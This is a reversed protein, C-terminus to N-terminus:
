ALVWAPAPAVWELDLNIWFRGYTAVIESTPFPARPRAEIKQEARGPIKFHFSATTSLLPVMATELASLKADLDAASVGAVTVSAEIVRADQTDYGMFVGDTTLKPTDSTLVNANGLLGKISRVKYETGAGMVLTGYSIQNDSLAM